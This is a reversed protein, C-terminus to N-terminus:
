VIKRSSKFFKRVLETKQQYSLNTDMYINWLERIEYDDLNNSITDLLRLVDPFNERTIIANNPFRNAVPVMDFIQNPFYNSDEIIDAYDKLLGLAELLENNIDDSLTDEINIMFHQLIENIQDDQDLNQFGNYGIYLWAHRIDDKSLNDILPLLRRDKELEEPVNGKLFERVKRYAIRFAINYSNM